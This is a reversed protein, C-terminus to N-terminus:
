LSSFIDEMTEDVDVDDDSIESATVERIGEYHNFLPVDAGFDAIANDNHIWIITPNPDAVPCPVYGEGLVDCVLQLSEGNDTGWRMMVMALQDLLANSESVPLGDPGNAPNAPDGTSGLIVFAGSTDLQVWINRLTDVNPLSIDDAVNPLQARLSDFVARLGCRNGPENNFINTWGYPFRANMKQDYLAQVVNGNIPQVPSNGVSGSKGSARGRGGSSGGASNRGSGGGFGYNASSGGRSGAQPPPMPADYLWKKIWRRIEDDPENFNQAIKAKAARLLEDLSPRDSPLHYMCRYLTNRLDQDVWDYDEVDLDCLLPCYSIPGDYGIEELHADFDYKNTGAPFAYTNWLDEPIQPQPPLPPNLRTILCWMTWAIQWINSKCSYKGAVENEGLEPGNPNPPIMDWEGGFQERSSASRSSAPPFFGQKAIYRRNQYYYNRKYPKVRQATGFDSIKLRPTFEHEHPERDPKPKTYTFRNAPMTNIVQQLAEDSLEFGNILVNNPDIDFHVMNEGCRQLSLTSPIEEILDGHLLEYRATAARYLASYWITKGLGKLDNLFGPRINDADIVNDGPPRGTPRKRDPHFKNPPFEMGVCARVLCLWFAWLIRDPIPSEPDEALKNILGALSGNEMFELLIYDKRAGRGRDLIQRKVRQYREVHIRDKNAWYAQSRDGRKRAQPRRRPRSAGDDDYDSEEEASSDDLPDKELWPERRPLGVNQPEILQVCHASRRMRREEFRLSEDSWGDLSIKVVIDTGRYGPPVGTNYTYHIAMGQGGRGLIKRPRWSPSANTFFETTERYRARHRSNRSGPALDVSGMLDTGPVQREGYLWPEWDGGDFIPPKAIAPVVFDQFKSLTRSFNVVQGDSRYKGFSYNYQKVLELYAQGSRPNGDIISAM